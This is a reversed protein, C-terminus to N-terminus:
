HKDNNPLPEPLLQYLNVLGKKRDLYTLQNAHLEPIYKPSCWLGLDEVTIEYGDGDELKTGKDLFIKNRREKARITLQSGSLGVAWESPGNHARFARRVAIDWGELPKENRIFDKVLFERVPGGGGL